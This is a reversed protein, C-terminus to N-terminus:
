VIPGDSPLLRHERAYDELLERLRRRGRHLRSTVTGIPSSIIEAIEKYAFGEVDALYVVLRHEAPVAQLAQTVAPGPLRDLVEAETSKVLPSRISKPGAVQWGEVEEASALRPQRQRKRYTDIFTTALVRYLWARLNTGPRLRHFSRHAKVYTDQVLDEADAHNRTMRLAAAHLRNLHQMADQAFRATRQAATEGLPGFIAVPEGPMARDDKRSGGGLGTPGSKETM